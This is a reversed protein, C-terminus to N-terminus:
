DDEREGKINMVNKGYRAILVANVVLRFVDTNVAETDEFDAVTFHDSDLYISKAAQVLAYNSVSIGYMRIYDMIIGNNSFADYARYMLEKDATLLYLAARFRPTDFKRRIDIMSWMSRFRREHSKDLWMTDEYHDVLYRLRWRFIGSPSKFTTWVVESYDVDGDRIREAMYPCEEDITCRLKCFDDCYWCDREEPTNEFANNFM